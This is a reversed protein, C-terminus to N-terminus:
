RRLTWMNTTNDFRVDPQNEEVELWEPRDIRLRPVEEEVEENNRNQARLNHIDVFNPKHIKATVKKPKYHFESDYFHKQTKDGGHHYQLHSAVYKRDLRISEIPTKDMINISIDVIQDPLRIEEAFNLFSHVIEEKSRYDFVSNEKLNEYDKNLGKQLALSGFAKCVEIVAYIYYPNLTKNFLRFELTQRNNWINYFNLWMYRIPVYRNGGFLDLNGMKHKFEGMSKSEMLDKINLIQGHGYPIKVVPPGFKTIPRCYTSDNKIGRFEYGMGGLLFFVDELNAGLKLVSKLIDLSIGGFSLHVHIGARFSEESEGLAILESTLEKLIRLHNDDDTNLIGSVLEGGIVSRSRRDKFLKKTEEDSFTVPIGGCLEADSEVSADNTTRFNRLSIRGKHTNEMEFEIGVTKCIEPIAM